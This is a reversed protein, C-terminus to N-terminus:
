YYGLCEHYRYQYFSSSHGTIQVRGLNVKAIVCPSTSLHTLPNEVEFVNIIKSTMELGTDLKWM